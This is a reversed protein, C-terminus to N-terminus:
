WLLLIMSVCIHMKNQQNNNVVCLMQFRLFVIVYVCLIPIWIFNMFSSNLLFKCLKPKSSAQAITANFSFGLSLVYFIIGNNLTTM